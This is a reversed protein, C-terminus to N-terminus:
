IREWVSELLAECNGLWGPPQSRGTPFGQALSCQPKFVEHKQTQEEETHVKSCTSHTEEIIKLAM